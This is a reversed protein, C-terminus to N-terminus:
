ARTPAAAAEAAVRAAERTRVFDAAEYLPDWPPIGADEDEDYQAEYEGVVLDRLSTNARVATLLETAVEAGRVLCDEVVLQRLHTNRPLAAFLPRMGADGLGCFDLRLEELAPVDAAVLRGLAAGIPAAEEEPTGDEYPDNYGLDLVRISPHGVFADLLTVAPEAVAWLHSQGVLLRQLTNNRRIADALLAAAPPDLMVVDEYPLGDADDQNDIELETLTTNGSLLRALAPVAEPSLHCMSLKLKQLGVSLAVDVVTDMDALGMRVDNLGRITLEELSGHTSVDAALSAFTDAGNRDVWPLELARLRLAGFPPQKRLLPRAASCTTMLGAELAQLAPARRALTSALSRFDPLPYSVARHESVVLGRLERLAAANELAVTRLGPWVAPRGALNLAELRGRARRTAALLAAEGFTCTLGSTPESLDLAAWLEPDAVAVRWSRCVCACRARQDAPLLLLIARVVLPVLLDFPNNGSPCARPSRRELAAQQTARPAARGSRRSRAM